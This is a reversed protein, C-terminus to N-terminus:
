EKWTGDKLVWNIPQLESTKMTLGAGNMLIDSTLCCWAYIVPITESNTSPFQWCMSASVFPRWKASLMKLHMKKFSFTQIGIVIESYNTGLPGILLIGALTWIIAQCRWPSLDNDSGITSLKGVCIYGDSPRLSNLTNRNLSRNSTQSQTQRVWQLVTQLATNFSMKNDHLVVTYVVTNSSWSLMIFNNITWGQASCKCWVLDERKKDIIKIVSGQACLKSALTWRNEKSDLDMWPSTRIDSLVLCLDSAYARSEGLLLAVAKTPFSGSVGVLIGWPWYRLLSRFDNIKLFNM